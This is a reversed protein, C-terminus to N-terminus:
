RHRKKKEKGVTVSGNANTKLTLGAQEVVEAPLYDGLNLDEM